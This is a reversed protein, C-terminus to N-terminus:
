FRIKRLFSKAANQKAIKKNEGFGEAKDKNFEVICRFHPKHSNGDIKEVKYIPLKKNLKQTIEQLETIPNDPIHDSEKIFLEWHKIVFKRCVEMSSDLYIAGIIAEMVDELIKDNDRGHLNEEGKSMKIYEGLSINRAVQALVKGSVLYAIKKSLQGESDESFRKYIEEVLIAALISDGVFELREYSKINKGKRYLLSTHTLAEDLLSKNKFIYNIKSPLNIPM